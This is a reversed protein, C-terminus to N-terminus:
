RSGDPNGAWVETRVRHGTTAAHAAAQGILAAALAMGKGYGTVCGPDQCAMEAVTTDPLGARADALRAAEAEPDPIRHVGPPMM